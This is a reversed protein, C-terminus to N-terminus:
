ARPRVAPPRAPLAPVTRLEHLRTVLAGLLLGVGFSYVWLVYAFGTGIVAFPGSYRQLPGYAVLYLDLGWRSLAWLLATVAGGVLASRVPPRPAPVLYFIQAAVAVGLALPLVVAVASGLTGSLAQAWAAGHFVLEFGARLPGLILSILTAAAFLLGAQVAMRADFLRNALGGPTSPSRRVVFSVSRRVTAFLLVATFATAVAGTVTVSAGVEATKALTEAASSAVASPVFTGLIARADRRVSSGFLLGLLGLAVSVAPLTAIIGKYALAQALFFAEADRVERAVARLARATPRVTM